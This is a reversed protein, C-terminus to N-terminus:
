PIGWNSTQAATHCVRLNAGLYEAGQSHSDTMQKIEKYESLTLCNYFQIFQTHGKTIRDKYLHSYQCVICRDVYPGSVQKAHNPVPQVRQTHNSM